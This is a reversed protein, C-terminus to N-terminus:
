LRESNEKRKFCMKTNRVRIYAEDTESESSNAGMMSDEGMAADGNTLKSRSPNTLAGLAIREGGRGDHNVIHHLQLGPSIDREGTESLSATTVM